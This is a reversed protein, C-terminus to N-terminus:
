GLLMRGNYRYFVYTVIDILNLNWQCLWQNEVKNVIHYVHKIAIVAANRETPHSYFSQFAFLGFSFFASDSFVKYFPWFPLFQLLPSYKSRHRQNLLSITQFDHNIKWPAPSSHLIKLYIKKAKQGMQGHNLFFIARKSEAKPITCHSFIDFNIDTIYSCM